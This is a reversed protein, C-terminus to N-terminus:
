SDFATMVRLEETLTAVVAWLEQEAPLVIELPIAHKETLLGNTTTVTSDGIYVTGNGIVHLYVPRTDESAAVILQATTTITFSKTRVPDTWAM